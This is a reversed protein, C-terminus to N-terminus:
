RSRVLIIQMKSEADIAYGGHIRTLVQFWREAVRLPMDSAHSPEGWTYLGFERGEVLWHTKGVNDIGKIFM